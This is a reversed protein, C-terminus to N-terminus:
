RGRRPGLRWCRRATATPGTNFGPGLAAKQLLILYLCSAAFDVAGEEIGGRSPERGRFFRTVCRWQAMRWAGLVGLDIARFLPWFAGEHDARTGPGRIARLGCRRACCARLYRRCNAPGVLGAVRRSRFCAEWRRVGDRGGRSPPPVVVSLCLGGCVPHRRTHRRWFQPLL